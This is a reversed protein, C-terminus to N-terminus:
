TIPYSEVDDHGWGRGKEALQRFPLGMACAALADANEGGAPPPTLPPRM